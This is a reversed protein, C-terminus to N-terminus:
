SNIKIQIEPSFESNVKYLFINGTTINWSIKKGEQELIKEINIKHKQFELFDKIKFFTIHPIYDLTNEFINKQYYKLHLEDFINKLFEPNKAKWYCISERKEKQFYDFKIFEIHQSINKPFVFNEPINEWLYYLTIHLSLINQFELINEINNERLYKQLAYFLDIFKESIIELWVFHSTIKM